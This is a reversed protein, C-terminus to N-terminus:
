EGSDVVRVRGFYTTMTDVTEDALVVVREWIANISTTEESGTFTTWPGGPDSAFEVSYTIESTVEAKRRVFEVRLKGSDSDLRIAPLGSDGTSEELVHYDPLLPSLNFSLELLHNMGDLDFDDLIGNNTTVGQDILERQLWDDIGEYYAMSKETIQDAFVTALSVASNEVGNIPELELFLDGPTIAVLEESELYDSLATGGADLVRWRGASSGSIRVTVFGRSFEDETFGRSVYTAGGGTSNGGGSGATEGLNMLSVINNNIARVTTDGSGGLYIAVPFFVGPDTEVYVPGGSCGPNSQIADTSWVFDQELVYRDNAGTTAHMRGQDAEDVEEVPYGVLFKDANGLLWTNATSESFQYGGYGGRAAPELFYLVAADDNQSDVSGIGPGFSPNAVDLARQDAYSEFIYWGRPIMATPEYEGKHRQHFWFVEDVYALENDDFIVHGATLVTHEQTVVGSGFGQETSIQGSFLYPDDDIDSGDILPLVETDRAGPIESKVLYTGTSSNTQDKQVFVTRTNPTIRGSVTKFEVIQIGSDVVAQDGNDRWVTEGQRRWQGRDSESVAEAIDSPGIDVTLMGTGVESSAITVYSADVEVPTPDTGDIPVSFRSPELLGDVPTFEIEYNGSILGTAPSGGDDTSGRWAVEGVLRWEGQDSDSSLNVELVGDATEQASPAQSVGPATEGFVDNEIIRIRCTDSDGFTAGVPNSLTAFFVEDGEVQDDDWFAVVLSQVGPGAFNLTQLGPDFYDGTPSPEFVVPKASGKSLEIDISAPGTGTYRVDVEISGIDELESIRLQDLHILPQFSEIAPQVLTSDSGLANSGQALAAQARFEETGGGSAVWVLGMLGQQITIYDGDFVQTVGDSLFLSGGIIDHIHFHTVEEENSPDRAILFRDEANVGVIPAAALSILGLDSGPIGNISQFDGGLYLGRRDVHLTKVLGDVEPELLTPDLRNEAQSIVYNGTGPAIFNLHNLQGVGTQTTRFSYNQAITVPSGGAPTVVANYTSTALDVQFEVLYPANKVYGLPNVAGWGSGNRADIQGNDRFRITVALDDFSSAPGDSLGAPGDIIDDNANIAFSTTFSGTQNELEISQFDATATTANGVLGTAKDIYLVKGGRIIWVGTESLALPGPSASDDLIPIWSNDFGGTDKSLRALGHVSIFDISSFDGHIYVHTDDVALVSVGGQNITTEWILGGHGNDDHRRVEGDSTFLVGGEASGVTEQFPPPFAIPQGSTSLQTSPGQPSVGSHTFYLYDDNAVMTGIFVGDPSDALLLQFLSQGGDEINIELLSESGSLGVFLRDGGFVLHSVPKECNSAWSDDLSGDPNLRALHQREVGNVFFFEGGILLKGDPQTAIACIKAGAAQVQVPFSQDLNGTDFELRSMGLRSKQNITGIAGGVLLGDGAVLLDHVQYPEFQFEGGGIDIGSSWGVDFEGPADLRVRTVSNTHRGLIDLFQTFKGGFYVWGEHISVSQVNSAFFFDAGQNGNAHVVPNWTLDVDGTEVNLKAPRIESNDIPDESELMGPVVVLDNGEVALDYVRIGVPSTFGPDDAGPGTVPIRRLGGTGHGVLVANGSSLIVEVPQPGPIPSWSLDTAGTTKSVKAIGGSSSGVFVHDETQALGEAYLQLHLGFFVDSTLQLNVSGDVLSVKAFDEFAEGSVTSFSGAIYADNDDIMLEFCPGDLQPAWSYDLTGDANIRAINSRPIDNVSDFDGGILIKGDSQLAMTHVEGYTSLKLDPLPVPVTQAMLFSCSVSLLLASLFASRM